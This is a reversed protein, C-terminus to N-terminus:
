FRPSFLNLLMALVVCRLLSKYADLNLLYYLLFGFEDTLVIM